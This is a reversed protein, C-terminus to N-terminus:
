FGAFEIAPKKEHMFGGTEAHTNMSGATAIMQRMIAVFKEQAGFETM